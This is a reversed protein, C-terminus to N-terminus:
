NEEAIERFMRKLDGSTDLTIDLDESMDVLLTEMEAVHREIGKIRRGLVEVAADCEREAAAQGARRATREARYLAALSVGLALASMAVALPDHTWM